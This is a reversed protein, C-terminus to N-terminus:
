ISAGYVPTNNKTKKPSLPSVNTKNLLTKPSVGLVGRFSFLAGSGTLLPGGFPSLKPPDHTASIGQVARVSTISYSDEKTYPNRGTEDYDLRADDGCWGQPPSAGAHSTELLEIPPPPHDQNESRSLSQRHIHLAHGGRPHCQIGENLAHARYLLVVELERWSADDRGVRAPALVHSPALPTTQAIVCRFGRTRVTRTHSCLSTANTEERRQSEM